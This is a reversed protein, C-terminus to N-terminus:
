TLDEPTACSDMFNIRAFRDIAETIQLGDKETVYLRASADGRLRSAYAERDGVYVGWDDLWESVMRGDRTDAAPTLPRLRAIMARLETNSRDVVDAREAPTASEFAQPLAALSQVTAACVTEGQDAFSHDDLRGPPRRSALPSLAYAWLGVIVLLVAVVAVRGLRSSRGRTATPDGTPEVPESPMTM